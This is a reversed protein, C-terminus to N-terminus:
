QTYRYRMGKRPTLVPAEELERRGIMSSMGRRRYFDEVFKRVKAFLASDTDREHYLTREHMTREDTTSEFTVAAVATATEPTRAITWAPTAERIDKAPHIEAESQGESWRREIEHFDLPLPKAFVVPSCTAALLLAVLPVHM